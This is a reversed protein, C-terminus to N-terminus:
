MSFLLLVAAPDLHASVPTGLSKFSDHLRIQEAPKALPLFVPHLLKGACGEMSSQLPTETEATAGLAEEKSQAPIQM